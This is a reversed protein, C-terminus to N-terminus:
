VLRFQKFFSLEMIKLKSGEKIPLKIKCSKLSGGSHFHYRREAPINCRASEYNNVSTETCSM